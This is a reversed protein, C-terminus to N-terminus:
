CLKCSALDNGNLNSSSHNYNHNDIPKKTGTELEHKELLIKTAIQHYNHAEYISEILGVTARPAACEFVVVVVVHVEIATLTPM